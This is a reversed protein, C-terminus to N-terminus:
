DFVWPMPRAIGYGQAYDIGIEQLQQLIAENEVFEAVTEIKMVQAIRHFYKVTARDVKDQIINKVFSGDIKLYDVSLNKLYNLSSIGSGFDDLAISCGLQKLEQILKAATALNAIAATETIEFCVTGPSIALRTLQEKLFLRFEKSSISAGSLNIAYMSNPLAMNQNQQYYREYNAFFHNIVWRDIAPMLNYREAAPIFATPSFLQEQQNIYRLLIEYYAPKEPDKLSIIKQAYLCFRNETLAQNLKVIWQREGLNQSLEPDNEQYVHVWNRGNAKAVYCAADAASLLDNLSKTDSNIAVLGISVGITFTRDQWTFRFQEVWQRLNNAIQLAVELPCQNLLFGFEDGGLRALVDSARIKQMFLQTIQRLLEDGAIHGCTDNVVKFRDLDLYCLAHQHGETEASAIAEVLRKEFERRNYLGTLMDHTAQWSLQQTLYRSETIDHFVIVAGIIQEQRDCIPAVSNKIAYETGDRAILIPQNALGLTEQNTIPERTYEDVLRFIDSLPKGQAEDAKWGTLREAMPNFKVIKGGADTTIVADGISQLTVLALEKEQLITQELQKRETIVETFMILGGIEEAQNFWPHLEWRLWDISGDEHVFSDEESKVVAGALCDQHAQRWRDPIRPFVDYHCRGILPIRDLKYDKIWRDSVALYRLQNDFMAIAAPTFRVFLKLLEGNARLERETQQRQIVEQQLKQNTQKLQSTRTELESQLTEIVSFLEAPDLIKLMNFQTVIGRLEGQAGTIVLRRVQLREMQQRVQMLSDSDKLCVLPTSMVSQATTKVLDLGLIQFRVIDRETVIGVPISILNATSQSQRYDVIVICSSKQVAMMQSLSLVSTTMPAQLVETTMAEEVRRFKLLNSPHLAQCITYVSVIGELHGYDDVIPLHRIYNQRLITLITQINLFDSKKFTILKTTMVTEIKTTALNIGTATLRVIDPETLIGVLKADEVILVYSYSRSAQNNQQNMQAIAELVVVQSDVTPPNAEIVDELQLSQYNSNVSM